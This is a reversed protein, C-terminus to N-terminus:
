GWRQVHRRAGGEDSVETDDIGCSRGRPIEYAEEALQRLLVRVKGVRFLRIEQDRCTPDLSSEIVHQVVGDVRVNRVHREQGRQVPLM